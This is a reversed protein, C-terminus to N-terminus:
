FLMEQSLRSRAIECYKESIEIGTANRNLYKSAVLTTGSGMFPDLITQANPFCGIMDKALELPFARTHDTNTGTPKWNFLDHHNIKNELEIDGTKALWYIRETMPYFRVKDFNQSGNFWVLEQKVKWNTKFLWEYPSIQLGDRIRNKHQYLVSGNDAVVRWLENLADIQWKQYDDEDMEDEYAEHYKAGTHHRNGLNFPPSTLVLDFQKDAFGRMIELSDGCIVKQESAKQEENLLTRLTM